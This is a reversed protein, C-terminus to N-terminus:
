GNTVERLIIKEVKKYSKDWSLDKSNESIKKAHSNIEEDCKEVVECFKQALSLPYAETYAIDDNEGLVMTNNEGDNMVPVCGAVLLELPLLSVNTLSLVLCAVSDHYVEALEQKTLIGRNTFEFPIDFNSLDQGITVIEYEPHKEKFIQLAMIGMEFGRRETHSRAYFVIKKKKSIKGKPRYIDLDAGFDFYDARMGYDEGVKKTLWKGATIGYFGFKYTAEALKYRSGVGYFIPEFDQVFYFKHIKKNSINFVAYATEWSTAFVVDHKESFKSIEGVEVDIGYSKSFIEKAEASSQNITNNDYIYFTIKHGKGQLYKVFRSITTHGGGGPGVPPSVWAIDLKEKNLKAPTRYPNNIFDANKIDELQPMVPIKKMNIKAPGATVTQVKRGATAIREYVKRTVSRMGENKYTKVIKKLIIM